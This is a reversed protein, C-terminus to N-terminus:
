LDRFALEKESTVIGDSDIYVHYGPIFDMGAFHVSVNATGENNKASKRPNTGLAVIGIDLASVAESDRICGFLLIGSWENKQALAAVNDGLLACRLSGGGDVVLVKSKGNQELAARVLSNDEYCKVTEIRGFFENCGGFSKFGIPDAVQIQDGYEDCLDSTKMLPTKEM